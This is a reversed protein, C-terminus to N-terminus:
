GVAGSRGHGAYRAMATVTSEFCTSGAPNHYQDPVPRLPLISYGELFPPTTDVPILIWMIQKAPWAGVEYWLDYCASFDAFSMEGCEGYPGTDHVVFMLTNLNYDIV